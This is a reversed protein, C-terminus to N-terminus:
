EDRKFSFIFKKPKLLWQKLYSTHEMKGNIAESFTRIGVNFFFFDTTFISKLFYFSRNHFYNYVDLNCQWQQYRKGTVDHWYSYSQLLYIGRHKKTAQGGGGGDAKNNGTCPTKSQFSHKPVPNAPHYFLVESSTDIGSSKKEPSSM